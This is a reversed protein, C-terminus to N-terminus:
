LRGQSQLTGEREGWSLIVKGQPILDWGANSNGSSGGADALRTWQAVWSLCQWLLQKSM